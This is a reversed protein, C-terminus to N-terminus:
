AAALQPATPSSAGVPVQRSVNPSRRLMHTTVGEGYSGPGVRETTCGVLPARRRDKLDAGGAYRQRRRDTYDGPGPIQWDLTRGEVDQGELFRQKSSGFSLHDRRPSRYPSLYSPEREVVYEGPGPTEADGVKTADAERPGPASRFRPSTSQFVARPEAHRGTGKDEYGKADAQGKRGELPSGFFRDACTGFAGKRGVKARERLDAQMSHSRAEGRSYHWPAPTRQEADKNCPRSDSSNFAQLPGTTERLAMVLSPHHVGHFQKKRASPLIKEVEKMKPNASFDAGKKAYHGPGPVHHIHYPDKYPQAPDRAWGIRASMGGFHARDGQSGTRDRATQVMRDMDAALDYQGPGPFVKDPSVLVQHALPSQSTFQYSNVAETLSDDPRPEAPFKKVEYSGPGPNEKPLVRGGVAFSAKFLDRATNSSHFATGPMTRRTVREGKVDYEGPGAMDSPEGTHRVYVHSVDGVAGTESAPQQGPGLKQPPMSPTSKEFAELVPRLASLPEKQLKAVLSEAEPRYTGPGPNKESSSAMFVTSGPASPAMRMAQSKLATPGVGLIEDGNAKTGSGNLVKQGIYAGPGPTFASGTLNPNLVREELGSFPACAEGVEKAPENHTNSYTGPAVHELTQLRRLVYEETRRPARHTDIAMAAPAAAGPARTRAARPPM